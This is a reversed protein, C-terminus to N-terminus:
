GHRVAPIGNATRPAKKADVSLHLYRTAAFSQRPSCIFRRQTESRNLYKPTEKRPMLEEDSWVTGNKALASHRPQLRFEDLM